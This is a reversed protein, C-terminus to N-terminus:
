LEELYGMTVFSRSTPFSTGFRKAGEIAGDIVREDLSLGLYSCSSFNIHKKGNITIERGNYTEDEGSLHAVGISKAKEAIDYIKSLHPEIQTHDM